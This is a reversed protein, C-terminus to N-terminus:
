LEESSEKKPRRRKKRRTVTEEGAKEINSFYLNMDAEYKNRM